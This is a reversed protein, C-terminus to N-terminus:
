FSHGIMFSYVRNKTKIDEINEISNTLGSSYRLDFNFKGLDLSTGIIIGTDSNKAETLDRSSSLEAAEYEVEAKNKFSIYPGCFVNYRFGSVSILRLKLLVPFEWYSLKSTTKLNSSENILEVVTGKSTMVAEPQLAFYKSFNLTIYGGAIFGKKYKIEINDEGTIKATSFNVGGKVGLELRQATSVSVYITLLIILSILVTINKRM